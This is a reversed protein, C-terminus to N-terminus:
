ECLTVFWALVVISQFKSFVDVTNFLHAIRKLKLKNIM